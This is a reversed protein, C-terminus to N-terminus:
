AAESTLEGFCARAWLPPAFPQWEDVDLALRDALVYYVAAHTGLGIHSAFVEINDIPATAGTARERAIQWPVVGDLRSYIATSPVPPPQRNANVIRDIVSRDITAGNMNEYLRWLATRELPGGIPSGLSIVQRVAEPALKAIARAHIGGLSWGVLSVTKRSTRHIDLLRALLQDYGGMRRVGLNIGQNWGRARYGRQDLFNRLPLTSADDAGFGPLVMVPHDDGRPTFGLWPAGAVLGAADM